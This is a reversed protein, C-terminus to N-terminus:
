DKKNIIIKVDKLRELRKIKQILNELDTKNDFQETIAQHWIIQRGDKRKGVRRKVLVAIGHKQLRQRFQNMAKYTGGVLQASYMSDDVQKVDKKDEQPKAIIKDFNKEAKEKPETETLIKELPKAAIM